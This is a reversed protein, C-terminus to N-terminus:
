NAVSSSTLVTVGYPNWKREGFKCSVHLMANDQSPIVCQDYQGLDEHESCAYNTSSSNRMLVIIWDVKWKPKGAQPIVAHYKRLHYQMHPGYQSFDEQENLAYDKSQALVTCKNVWQPRTLDFHCKPHKTVFNRMTHGWVTVSKSAGREGTAM